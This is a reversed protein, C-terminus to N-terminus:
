HTRLRLEIARQLKNTEAAIGDVKVWVVLRDVGNSSKGESAAKHSKVTTGARSLNCAAKTTEGQMAARRSKM